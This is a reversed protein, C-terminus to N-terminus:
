HRHFHQEVVLSAERRQALGKGSLAKKLHSKM